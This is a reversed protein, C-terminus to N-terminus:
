NRKIKDNYEILLNSSEGLFLVLWPNNACWTGWSTFFVEFFDETKAGLREFLGADVSDRETNNASSHANM